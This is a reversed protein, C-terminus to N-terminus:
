NWQRPRPMCFRHGPSTQHPRLDDELGFYFDSRDVMPQGLADTGMSHNAEDRQNQVPICLRKRALSVLSEGSRARDFSRRMWCWRMVSLSVWGTAPSEEILCSCASM